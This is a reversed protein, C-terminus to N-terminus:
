PPTNLRQKLPLGKYGRGPLSPQELLEYMLQAFHKILCRRLLMEIKVDLYKPNYCHLTEARCLKVLNLYTTTILILISTFICPPKASSINCSNVNNRSTGEYRPRGKPQTTVIAVTASCDSGLCCLLLEITRHLACAIHISILFRDVTNASCYIGIMCQCM